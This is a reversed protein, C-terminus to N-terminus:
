REVRSKLKELAAKTLEPHADLEGQEAAYIVMDLLIDFPIEPAGRSTKGSKDPYAWKISRAKYQDKDWSAWGVQLAGHNDGHSYDKKNTVIM